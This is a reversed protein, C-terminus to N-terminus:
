MPPLRIGLQQAVAQLNTGRAQALNQAMQQLQQPSKGQMNQIAQMMQPNSQAAQMMLQMPNQGSRIAQMMQMPNFM